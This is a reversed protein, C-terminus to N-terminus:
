KVMNELNIEDKSDYKISNVSASAQYWRYQANYNLHFGESCNFIILQSVGQNILYEGVYVLSLPIM